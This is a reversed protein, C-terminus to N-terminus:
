RLVRHLSPLSVFRGNKEHADIFLRQEQELIQASGGGTVSKAHRIDAGHTVGLPAAGHDFVVAEGWGEGSSMLKTLRRRETSGGGCTKGPNSDANVRKKGWLLARTWCAARYRSPTRRRTQSVAPCGCSTVWAWESWGCWGTTERCHRWWWQIGRCRDRHTEVLKSGGRQGCVSKCHSQSPTLALPLSPLYLSSDAALGVFVVFWLKKM